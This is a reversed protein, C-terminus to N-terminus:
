PYMERMRVPAEEQFRSLAHAVCGGMCLQDERFRCADCEVFIGGVEVHIKKHLDAYADMIERLSNFEFLSKKQFSSLPFCPWVSLDPGIDAVPGCGFNSRAGTNRYLWGLQEASFRCMPFGRDLGPKVRLSEFMPAFSFLRAIVADMDALSIFLNKVGPIPHAIGLRIGRQLGFENIAHFLFTLDFDTRYINFGPVVMEGFAGLFRRVSEEEALSSHTQGPDNMNCIFALRPARVNRFLAVAEDLKANSMIGSTFVNIDFGRELLYLIMSNFDPHLTPEGGLIQFRREGSAQLFDAIYILNEWSLIDDPPSESMHKNAFCYPCSRVCKQTFLINAM